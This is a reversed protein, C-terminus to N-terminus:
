GNFTPNNSSPPGDKPSPVVPEFPKAEEDAAIKAAIRQTKPKLGRLASFFTTPKYDPDYKELRQALQQADKTSMRAIQLRGEKRQAQADATSGKKLGAHDYRDQERQKLWDNFSVPNHEKIIAKEELRQTIFRDEPVMSPKAEVLKAIAADDKSLEDNLKAYALGFETNVIKEGENRFEYIACAYNLVDELYNKGEKNGASFLIPVLYTEKEEPGNVTIKWDATLNEPTGPPICSDIVGKEMLFKILNQTHVASDVGIPLRSAIPVDQPNSEDVNPFKM